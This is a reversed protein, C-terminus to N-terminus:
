MGSSPSGDMVMPARLLDFNWLSIPLIRSPFYCSCTVRSGQLSFASFVSTGRMLCLTTRATKTSMLSRCCSSGVDEFFMANKRLRHMFAPYVAGLYGDDRFFVPLKGLRFALFHEISIILLM